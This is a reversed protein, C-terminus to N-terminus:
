IDFKHKKRKKKSVKRSSEHKQYKYEVWDNIWKMVNRKRTFIETGIHKGTMWIKHRNGSKTHNRM